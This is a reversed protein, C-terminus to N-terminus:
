DFSHSDDPYRGARVDAAYARSAAVVTDALDAYRRLFRPTFDPNLGLMDPLV